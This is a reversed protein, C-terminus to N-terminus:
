DMFLCKKKFGIKIIHASIRQCKLFALYEQPNSALVLLGHIDYLPFCLTTRTKFHYPLEPSSCLLSLPIHPLFWTLSLVAYLM